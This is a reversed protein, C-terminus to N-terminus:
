QIRLYFPLRTYIGKPDNFSQFIILEEKLKLLDQTLQASSSSLDTIETSFLREILKEEWSRRNPYEALSWDQDLKATKIAYQIAAELGGIEDVLGIKLAEQGSWVRGQAIEKVKNPPLNRSQSVKDIFLSYIQNVFDQYIKLEKETKPRVNTRLDALQGTKVSDWTLGNNNGIKQLNFLIGFVGISGTITSKEAFIRKGGTSIWYGGSAAVDGMSVIVPKEKSLRNIERLIVESATASGGPSNVRLIVAKIQDDERIKRLERAYRDGGVETADGAGDVITGEAYLIAIKNTSNKDTVSTFVGSGYSDIGVQRFSQGEEKSEGTMKQLEALVEDFYAVEDVLGVQKATQPNLIGINDAIAQLTTREIKRSTSVKTIFDGWLNDLLTRIQLRNEPSMNQRTYPEVASKFSGVRVVQVGVGYKDLAGAYFLPQVSLGNFEVGGMPNIFIQDAVSGLYYEKESWEVDYAIIKKGSKKFQELAQRIESLTAYGSEDIGGKGYLFIGSIRQDEKAKEISELVQRLTLTTGTEQLAQALTSAPQTDKITTSLDFVLMSQDEVSPGTNQGASVFLLTLLGGTGLILLFFLAALSGLCSSFIQKTFQGM